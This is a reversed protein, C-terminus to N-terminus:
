GTAVQVCGLQLMVKRAAADSLRRLLQQVAAGPEARTVAHVTKTYRYAGDAVTDVGPAVGDVELVRVRRDQSLVIAMSTAGLAGGIREIDAVAEDDTMAIRMGPRRAAATLAQALDPNLSRALQTDGDSDPRLVLRVTEGGPWREVRGAYYAVLETFALRQVMVASHVAWVFPTRFLVRDVLGASREADTLPRSALALDIAGATLAKIGGGSGLNPVFSAELRLASVLRRLPALGSGTGGLVPASGAAPQALVQGVTGALCALPLLVRARRTGPAPACDPVIPM